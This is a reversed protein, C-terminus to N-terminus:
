WDPASSSFLDLQRQAPSARRQPRALLRHRQRSPEPLLRAEAASSTSPAFLRPHLQRQAPPFRSAPSCSALRAISYRATHARESSTHLTPRDRKPPASAAAQSTAPRPVSAPLEPCPLGSAPPLATRAGQCRGCNCHFRSGRAHRPAFSAISRATRRRAVPSQRSPASAPTATAAKIPCGTPLHSHNPQSPFPLFSQACSSKKNARRRRAPIGDRGGAVPGARGGGCRASPWGQAPARRAM